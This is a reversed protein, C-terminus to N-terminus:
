ISFTTKQTQLPARRERREEFQKFTGMNATLSGGSQLDRELDLTADRKYVREYHMMAYYDQSTRLSSHSPSGHHHPNADATAASHRVFQGQLVRAWDVAKDAAYPSKTGLARMLDKYHELQLARQSAEMSQKSQSSALSEKAIVYLRDVCFKRMRPWLTLGLLMHDRSLEESAVFQTQNILTVFGSYANWFAAADDAYVAGFVKMDQLVRLIESRDIKSNAEKSTTAPWAKDLASLIEPLLAWYSQSWIQNHRDLSWPEDSSRKPLVGATPPPANRRAEAALRERNDHDWKQKEAAKKESEALQKVKQNVEKVTQTMELAKGCPEFSEMTKGFATKPVVRATFMKEAEAREEATVVRKDLLHLHPFLHIVQLRYNSENAIANGSLDLEVMGHLHKIYTLQRELDKLKNRAVNLTRIHSLEQLSGELSDIRNDSAVIEIIRFAGSSMTFPKAAVSITMDRGIPHDPVLNSIRTLQNNSVWLSQLNV